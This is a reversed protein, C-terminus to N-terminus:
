SAARRERVVIRAVLPPDLVQRVRDMARAVAQDAREYADQQSPEGLHAHNWWLDSRLDELYQGVEARLRRAIAQGELWSLLGAAAEGFGIQGLERALANCARACKCSLCDWRNTFPSLYADLDGCRPCRPRARGLM